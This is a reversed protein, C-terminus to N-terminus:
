GPRARQLVGAGVEVFAHLGRDRVRDSLALRQMDPDTDDPEVVEIIYAPRIKEGTDEDYVAAANRAEAAQVLADAALGSRDVIAVVRDRTDVGRGFLLMALASGGFLVPALVLGIIFGKTRVTALYERKAIRLAKPM